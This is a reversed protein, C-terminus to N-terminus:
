FFFDVAKPARIIFYSRKYKLRTRTAVKVNLSEFIDTIIKSFSEATKPYIIRQELAFKCIIQKLSYGIYFSSDADRFFGALWNNNLLSSNDLPM